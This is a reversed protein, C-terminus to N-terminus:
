MIVPFMTELTYVFRDIQGAVTTASQATAQFSYTIARTIGILCLLSVRIETSRMLHKFLGGRLGGGTTLHFASSFHRLLLLASLLEVIAM